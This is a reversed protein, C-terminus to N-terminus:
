LGLLVTLAVLWAAAGAVLFAWGLANAGAKGRLFGDGQRPEDVAGVLFVAGAALGIMGAMVLLVLLAGVAVIGVM